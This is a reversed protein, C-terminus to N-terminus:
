AKRAASVACALGSCGTVSVMRSSTGAPATGADNLAAVASMGSLAENAELHAPLGNFVAAQARSKARSLAWAPAVADIARDLLNHQM